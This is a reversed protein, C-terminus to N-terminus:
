DAAQETAVANLVRSVQTAQWKGGRRTRIGEANLRRAIEAMSDAGEARMEAIVKGVRASFEAAKSQRATTGKTHDVPVRKQGYKPHKEGYERWGGLKTGRDKAAKLAEKTRKSIAKREHQAMAAMVHITLENAEPMDAAVFRVGADQLTAIFAVNRSLRDLKAVLLTAGTLQCRNLAKELEPRNDQKGSETEVYPPSLLKDGERLFGNIAAQQAELGLGSRGQKATSVRMYAVYDTM